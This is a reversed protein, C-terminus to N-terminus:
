IYREFVATFDAREQQTEGFKIHTCFLSHHQRDTTANSDIFAKLEHTLDLMRVGDIMKYAWTVPLASKIVIYKVLFDTSNFISISIKM